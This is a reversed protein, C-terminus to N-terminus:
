GGSAQRDIVSPYTAVTIMYYWQFIQQRVSMPMDCRSLKKLNSGTAYKLNHQRLYVNKISGRRNKYLVNYM